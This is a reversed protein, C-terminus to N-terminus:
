VNRLLLPFSETKNDGTEEGGRSGKSKFGISHLILKMSKIYRLLRDLIGYEEETDYRRYGVYSRVMTWHRSEVYPADNERRTLRLRRTHYDRSRTYKIGQEKTYGLVFANIIAPIFRLLSLKTM